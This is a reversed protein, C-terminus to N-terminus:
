PLLVVRSFGKSKAYVMVEKKVSKYEGPFSKEEDGIKFWWSGYGKPQKNGYSYSWKSTDIEFAEKVTSNNWRRDMEVMLDHNREILERKEAPTANRMKVRNVSVELEMDKYKMKRPDEKSITSPNTLKEIILNSNSM